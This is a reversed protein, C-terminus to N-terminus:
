EEPSSYHSLMQWHSQLLDHIPQPLDPLDRVTSILTHVSAKAAEDIANRSSEFTPDADCPPGFILDGLSLFQSNVVTQHAKLLVPPPIAGGNNRFALAKNRREESSSPLPAFQDFPIELHLGWLVLAEYYYRFITFFRGMMILRPLRELYDGELKVVTWKQLAPHHTKFNQPDRLLLLRYVEVTIAAPLRSQWYKISGKLYAIPIQIGFDARGTAELKLALQYSLLFYTNSGDQLPDRKLISLCEEVLESEEHEDILVRLVGPYVWLQRRDSWNQLLEPVDVKEGKEVKQRLTFLEIQSEADVRLQQDEIGKTFLKLEQLIRETDEQSMRRAANLWSNISASYNAPSQALLSRELLSKQGPIDAIVHQVLPELQYNYVNGASIANLVLQDKIPKGFNASLAAEAARISYNTALQGSTTVLLDSITLNALIGALDNQNMVPGVQQQLAKNSTFSKKGGESCRASFLVRRISMFDALRDTGFHRWILECLKMLSEIKEVLVPSRFDEASEVDPLSYELVSNNLQIISNFDGIQKDTLAFGYESAYREATLVSALSLAALEKALGNMLYDSGASFQSTEEGGPRKVESALLAANEAMSILSSFQDTWLTRQSERFNKASATDAGARKDALLPNFRLATGWLSLSLAMLDTLQLEEKGAAQVKATSPAADQKPESEKTKLWAAIRSASAEAVPGLSSDAEVFASIFKCVDTDVLRGAALALWSSRARVYDAIPKDEDSRGYLKELLEPSIQKRKEASLPISEFFLKELLSSERHYNVGARASGEYFDIIVGLLDEDGLLSYAMWCRQLLRSQKREYESDRPLDTERLLTAAKTLLNTIDAFLCARISSDVCFLVAEFLRMRVKVYTSEDTVSTTEARLIHRSLKRLWMGQAPRPQKDYWFLAWFLHGLGGDLELEDAMGVLVDTKERVAKIKTLEGDPEVTLFNGFSSQIGSILNRFDEIRLKSDHLYLSLVEPRLGTKEPLNKLLFRQTLPVNDATLSILFLFDLDDCGTKKRPHRERYGRLFADIKAVDPNEANCIRKVVDYEAIEESKGLLKVLEIKQERTLLLQEYRKTKAYGEGVGNLVLNSFRDGDTDYEFIIWYELGAREGAHAEFYSAIVHRTPPDLKEFHDIIIVRPFDITQLKEAVADVFRDYALNTGDMTGLRQNLKELSKSKSRTTILTTFFQSGLGLALVAGNVVYFMPDSFVTSVTASSGGFKLKQLSELLKIFFGVLLSLGIITPTMWSRLSIFSFFSDTLKHEVALRLLKKLGVYSTILPLEDKRANGTLQWRKLHPFNHAVIQNVVECDWSMGDDEKIQICSCFFDNELMRSIRDKVHAGLEKVQTLNAADGITRPILRNPRQLDAFHRLTIFAPTGNDSKKKAL